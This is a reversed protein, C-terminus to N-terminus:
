PFQVFPLGIAEKIYELVAIIKEDEFRRGVLQLSIPLGHFKRPDYMKWHDRDVDNMPKYKGELRDVDADVKCVPFVLAPYDLLNWQSTYGWYKATNHLPAVGPAAPCLIVDVVGELEGTGNNGATATDNWVKAYEKRYEEREEQWYFFEKMGLRKVCPNEKIIWKTLPRWPEGSEAIVAADEAGGDTFYLSSIIAWAEDHLHPKWDVVTINPIAKLKSVITRLARTIPPHPMVVNDHWLIAIKLPKDQPIRFTSNWPLPILAPESLWPKSAVITQMFLKIGTLSASLPGIVTVISDAGAMTSSWGDTPVRFATPKLGYLGNNAAPSRISGGIDTGIGLCSGRLGILAGEGGSSGGASANCNYPNTTVGYLNSDTELHMLTQPQTTRAHFIAGARWLIQLVHADEQAIKDQWAVYGANLGLGEIGIHEKVSVPLGHLPGLPKGNQAYYDDLYQARALAREPLLETICNTLKQALGARRLFAKVTVTATLGGSGLMGLLDEPPTETIRVEDPSLMERPINVVNTPLALPPQPVAPEVRDITADRYERTEEAIHQWPRKRKTKPTLAM